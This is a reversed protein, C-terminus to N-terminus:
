KKIRKKLWKVISHKVFYGDSEAQSLKGLEEQVTSFGYRVSSQIGTAKKEEIM